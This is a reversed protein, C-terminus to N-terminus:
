AKTRRRPSAQSGLKFYVKDTTPTPFGPIHELWQWGKRDKNGGYVPDSLLAEVLYTMMLSLWRSGAKSKEITRLINERQETNLKVFSLKHHKNAFDNLWNVGDLIFQKEEADTDPADLMNQLFRLAYIDKAGPSTDDAPFLHEQVNALTLWPDQLNKYVQQDETGLTHMSARSIVPYGASLATVLQIFQRRNILNKKM